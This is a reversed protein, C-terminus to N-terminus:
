SLLMSEITERPVLCLGSDLVLDVERNHNDISRDFSFTVGKRYPADWFPPFLISYSTSAPTDLDGLTQSYKRISLIPIPLFVYRLDKAPWTDSVWMSQLVVQIGLLDGAQNVLYAGYAMPPIELLNKRAWSSISPNMGQVNFSFVSPGEGIYDQYGGTEREELIPEGPEFTPSTIDLLGSLNLNLTRSQFYNIGYNKVFSKVSDYIGTSTLSTSTPQQMGRMIVPTSQARRRRGTAYDFLIDRVQGFYNKKGCVSSAASGVYLGELCNDGYRSLTTDIPSISGRFLM